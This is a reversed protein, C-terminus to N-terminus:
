TITFAFHECANRTRHKLPSIFDHPKFSLHFKHESMLSANVPHQILGVALIM